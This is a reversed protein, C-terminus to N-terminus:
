IDSKLTDWRNVIECFVEATKQADYIASHAEKRNFDIDLVKATRALVTQGCAVAGLSATDISTFRHFPSKIGKCRKIMANIFGLDFWANHGVLVARQCHYKKVAQQIPPFLKEIAEQESIAFRFPHFPDIKNVKLAEPDLNAGKFPIVHRHHTEGCHLRRNDDMDILIVAIELVADTRAELGGTEVDVVVPLYGRFRKAMPTHNTKAVASDAM